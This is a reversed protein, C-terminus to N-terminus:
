RQAMEAILTKLFASAQGEVEDGGDNTLLVVALDREPQIVVLAYFDGNGGAHASSLSGAFDQSHWGLAYPGDVPRHLERITAARLIPTNRGELGRLNAQIFRSYDAISLAIGGAGQMVPPKAGRPDIPLPKGTARSHGWPQDMEIKTGAYRPHIGLPEAIFETVLQQWSKGSAREAILAAIVFDANSYRSSTGPPAIPVESLAARTFAERSTTLDGTYFKQIQEFAEPSTWPRLGARHALLQRITIPRFEQRIGLDSFVEGLSTEWRLKGQEVLVGLVAATFAKANSGLGFRDDVTVRQPRDVRRQGAAAVYIHNHTIIAAAAGPFGNKTVVDDLSKQLFQQATLGSPTSVGATAASAPQSVTALLALGAAAIAWPARKM